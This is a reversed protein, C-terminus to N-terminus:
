KLEKLENIYETLKQMESVTTELFMISDTNGNGIHETYDSVRRAIAAIMTEVEEKRKM